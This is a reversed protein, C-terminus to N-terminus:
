LPQIYKRSYWQYQILVLLNMLVVKSFTGKWCDISHISVKLSQCNIWSSLTTHKSECISKITSKILIDNLFRWLLSNFPGIGEEMPFKDLNLLNYTVVISMSKCMNFMACYSWKQYDVSHNWEMLSQFNISSSITTHWLKWYQISCYTVIYSSMKEIVLQTTRNRLTNAM